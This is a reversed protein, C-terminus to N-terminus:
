EGVSLAHDAWNIRENLHGPLRQEIKEIIDAPLQELASYKAGMSGFILHGPHDKMKMWDWFGTETAWNMVMDASTVSPDALQKMSTYYRYMSSDAYLLMGDNDNVSFREDYTLWVEDGVGGWGLRFPAEDERKMGRPVGGARLFYVGEPSYVISGRSTKYHGVPVMEGTVPNRFEDIIEGSDPDAFMIVGRYAHQYINGAVRRMKDQKVAIFDLFPEGLHGPAPVMLIKGTHYRYTPKGSLDSVVKLYSRVNDERSDRDISHSDLAHAGAMLGPSQSIGLAAAGLATIAGRRSLEQKVAM